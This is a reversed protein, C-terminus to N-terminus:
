RTGGGGGRGRGRNGRGKGHGRDPNRKGNKKNKEVKQKKHTKKGAEYKTTGVVEKTIQERGPRNELYNM